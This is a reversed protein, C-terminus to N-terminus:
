LWVGWADWLGRHLDWIFYPTSRHYRISAGMPWRRRGMPELVGYHEGSIRSYQLLPGQRTTGPCLVDLEPSIAILAFSLCSSGLGLRGKSGESRGNLVSVTYKVVIFVTM